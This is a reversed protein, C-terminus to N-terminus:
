DYKEEAFLANGKNRCLEPGTVEPQQEGVLM